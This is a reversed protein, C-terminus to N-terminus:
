QGSMCSAGDYTQCILKAEPNYKQIVKMLVESLSEADRNASVDHFGLFRECIAGSVNVYRLIVSLSELSITALHSLREQGCNSRLYTKVRKLGSFSREASVTTVPITLMLKILRFLEPLTSHLDDQKIMQLLDSLAKHFRKEEYVVLLENKLRWSDFFPYVKLLSALEADPFGKPKAFDAFASFDLLRFFNRDRETMQCIVADMIEYFLSRYSDTISPDEGQESCHFRQKRRGDEHGVARVTNDYVEQFTKDTRLAKLSKLTSDIYDFSRRLDLSRAQLVQFLVDTHGFIARFVDLLFMFKFDQLKQKLAMAQAIADNDWGPEMMIRDFVINLSQGECVANVARSKFNWRTTSGGPIRVSNDALVFNLRHAYCHVFLAHPCQEKVRAVESLSEADRDASVDHFGLFRECIAGSVNVYRLIVSLQCKCSVDTTDDAQIAFFDTSQIEQDIANNVVTAISDIIDNQISKSTGKFITSTKLHEALAPDFESFTELLQVFNGKNKSTASEDHGRFAHKQQGLYLVAIILKRLLDRKKGGSIVVDSRQLNELGNLFLAARSVRLFARHQNTLKKDVSALIEM